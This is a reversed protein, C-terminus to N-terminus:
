NEGIWSNAYLGDFLAVLWKSQGINKVFELGHNIKSIMEDVDHRRELFGLRRQFTAVSLMSPM